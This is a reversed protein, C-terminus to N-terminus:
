KKPTIFYRTLKNKDAVINCTPEVPEILIDSISEFSLEEGRESDGRDSHYNDWTHGEAHYDYVVYLEVGQLTICFDFVDDYSTSYEFSAKGETQKRIADAIVSIDLDTLVVKRLANQEAQEQKAFEYLRDTYPTAISPLTPLANMM